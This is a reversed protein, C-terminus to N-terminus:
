GRHCVTQILDYSKSLPKAGGFTDTTVIGAEGGTYYKSPIGLSAISGSVIPAALREGYSSINDRSRATLEGLYCIGILAKELEDIRTTIFEVAEKRIKKDDIADNVATFHKEKLSAIFDTVVTVKGHECSSGATELLGDTVGALASTVLVVQDGKDFYSKALEAVHRIRKGDGVSTGGFKMVIKM